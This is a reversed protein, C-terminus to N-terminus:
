AHKTEVQEDNFLADQHVWCHMNTQASYADVEGAFLLHFFAPPKWRGREEVQQEAQADHVLGNERHAPRAGGGLAGRVATRTRLPREAIYTM